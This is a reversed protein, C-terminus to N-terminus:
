RKKKKKKKAGWNKKEEEMREILGEYAHVEHNCKGVRQQMAVILDEEVQVERRVREWGRLKLEVDTSHVLAQLYQLEDAGVHSGTGLEAHDRQMRRGKGGGIAMAAMQAAAEAEDADNAHERLNIHM